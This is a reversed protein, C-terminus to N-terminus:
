RKKEKGTKAQAILELLADLGMTYSRLGFGAIVGRAAEATVSKIGRQDINSMHVEVSPIRLARLCDRLAYGAHVFGAPNILLGDVGAEAARYIRGIAEGEIHTYFIELGIGREHAHQQLMRDLEAATTTGYVEPERKGLNAMNAGQLLLISTM